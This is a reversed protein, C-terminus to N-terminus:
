PIGREGLEIRQQRLQQWTGADLMRVVDDPGLELGTLLRVWSAVQDASGGLPPPVDWRMVERYSGSSTVFRSGDPALVIARVPGPHHAAPGIPKGTVADWCRVDGDQGGTLVLQRDSSVAVAQVASPHQLPRGIPMGTAVDWLRATGDTAGTVVTSGDPSCVAARVGGGTQLLRGTYKGTRTEQLQIADGGLLLLTDATAGFGMVQQTGTQLPAEALPKGTIVDWSHLTSGYCAHVTRAGPGFAVAGVGGRWRGPRFERITKGAADWLEVRGPDSGVLLVDPDTGLALAEVQDHGLYKGEARGRSVAYLRATGQSQVLALSGAPDFAVSGVTRGSELPAGLPQGTETDWIRAEGSTGGYPEGPGTLARTGDPSFAVARVPQRHQFPTGFPEGRAVDWLRATGDSSGTLILDGNPSFAVAHFWGAHALTRGKPKGTRVDWFRITGGVRRGPHMNVMMGSSVTVLTSGDKSFAAAEIGGLGMPKEKGDPGISNAVVSSALPHELPEGIPKGMAVDWLRAATGGASVLTTSDPSFAVFKGVGQHELPTGVQRRTALEWLQTSGRPALPDGGATGIAVLRGDPSIALSEATGQLRLPEAAPRRTTVDWIQASSGGATVLVKGDPSFAAKLPGWGSSHALPPGLPEGTGTDWLWVFGSGATVITRGDPSFACFSVVEAWPPGSEASPQRVQELPARLPHVHARWASLNRRVVRQLHEADPPLAQLSRALWLMGRGADGQECLALGRDLYDEALRYETERLASALANAHQRERAGLFLAVVAAAVLAAAALGGMTAVAPNRRCWRWAREVAGVPRARIPEGAQFRGLDNALEEASAYRRGPEKSLCKLCITELDAPVQPVLRSPPVPEESLVRMLVEHQPGEFPPRGTLCEYLLAGLAYVDAAPGTDRVRGAAQEPAMYGATGMIAGSQSVERAEADIRKALGFDTIKAVREAGALLVNGPKLDRHVVGRLHAYHMARALTEILAAAERPTPRQKKLQDTLTGGDCFELSFFPQGRVEGVEYLQVIHPHQLRAVAETEIQFRLRETPGAHEVARIMKLAVLRNALIQRARYVVGMGGRDLEGLVEYGPV